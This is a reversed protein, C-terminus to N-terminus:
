VDSKAKHTTYLQFRCGCRGKSNWCSCKNVGVLFDKNETAQWILFQLTM